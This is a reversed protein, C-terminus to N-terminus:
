KIGEPRRGGRFCEVLPSPVPSRRKWREGLARWRVQSDAEATPESSISDVDFHSFDPPLRPIKVPFAQREVLELNRLRGILRCGWMSEGCGAHIKGQSNTNVGSRCGLQQQESEENNHGTAVARSGVDQDALWPKGHVVQQAAVTASSSLLGRVHRRRAFFGSGTKLAFVHSFQQFTRLWSPRLHNLCAHNM